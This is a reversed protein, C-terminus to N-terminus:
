SVGERQYISIKGSVEESPQKGVAGVDHSLAALAHLEDPLFSDSGYGNMEPFPVGRYPPTGKGSIFM